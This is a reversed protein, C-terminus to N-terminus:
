HLTRSSFAVSSSTWWSLTALTRVDGSVDSLGKTGNGTKIFV